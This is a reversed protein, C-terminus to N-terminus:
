DGHKRGIARFFRNFIAKLAVSLTGMVLPLFILLLDIRINCEGTCLVRAVMLYEYLAYALWALAWVALRRERHVYWACSFALPIALALVVAQIM